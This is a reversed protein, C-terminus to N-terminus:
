GAAGRRHAALLPLSLLTLLGASPEPAAQTTSSVNISSPDVRFVFVGSLNRTDGPPLAPTTGVVPVGSVTTTFPGPTNNHCFYNMGEIPGLAASLFQVSGDFSKFSSSQVTGNIAFSLPAFTAALSGQTFDSTAPPTFPGLCNAPLTQM